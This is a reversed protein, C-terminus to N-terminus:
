THKQRQRNRNEKNEKQAEPRNWLLTSTSCHFVDIMSHNTWITAWNPCFAWTSHARNEGSPWYKIVPETSPKMSTHFKVVPLIRLSRLYWACTQYCKETTYGIKLKQHKSETPYIIPHAHLSYFQQWWLEWSNAISSWGLRSCYEKTFKLICSVPVLFKCLNVTDFKTAAWALEWVFTSPISSCEIQALFMYLFFVWVHLNRAWTLNYLHKSHTDHIVGSFHAPLFQTNTPLMDQKTEWQEHCPEKM